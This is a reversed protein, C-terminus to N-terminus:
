GAAAEDVVLLMHENAVRGAPVSRDGAVLKAVADRKGEGAVIWLVEVAGDLVPYTLTMRRHGRYEGTVAVSRDTVDLVPDGPVLSATHGDDGLGLHILDLQPLQSAYAAAAASVEPAEVPMAHVRTRGATPISARLHTLNRDDSGPPAIREDVQYVSIADWALDHDDLAAFMAGPTTGGSVALTFRGRADIATRARDAIVEAGRRAVAAADAVVEREVSV